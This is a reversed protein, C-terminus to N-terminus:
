FGAEDGTEDNTMGGGGFAGAWSMLRPRWPILSDWFAVM